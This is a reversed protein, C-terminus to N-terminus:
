YTNCFLFLLYLTSDPETPPGTASSAPCPTALWLPTASTCNVIVALPATPGSPRINPGISITAQKKLAGMGSPLTVPRTFDL